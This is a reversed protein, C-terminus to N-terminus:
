LEHFSVVPNFPESSVVSDGVGHNRLTSLCSLKCGVKCSSLTSMHLKGLPWGATEGLHSSRSVVRSGQGRLGLNQVRFGLGGKAALGSM